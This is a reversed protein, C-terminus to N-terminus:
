CRRDPPLPGLLAANETDGQVTRRRGVRAASATHSLLSIPVRGDFSNGDKLGRAPRGIFDHVSVMARLEGCVVEANLVLALWENLAGCEDSEFHSFSILRLRSPDILRSLAERVEPFMGRLGTHFLVPADDKV